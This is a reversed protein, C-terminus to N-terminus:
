KKQKTRKHKGSETLKDVSANHSKLPAGLDMEGNKFKEDQLQLIDALNMGSSPDETIEYDVIVSGARVATVMIQKSLLGLNKAINNVFAVKGGNQEFSDITTDM